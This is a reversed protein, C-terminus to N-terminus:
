TPSFGFNSLNQRSVKVEKEIQKGAKEKALKM